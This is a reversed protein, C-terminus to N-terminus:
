RGRSKSGSNNNQVGPLGTFRQMRQQWEQQSAILSASPLILVVDEETLGSVVESYDLDTLGTRIEVPTPVGDRIAFVVYTGGFQAGTGQNRRGGEGGRGGRGGLRRLLQREAPALSQFGAPMGGHKQIKDVIARVQDADVGPPLQVTRGMFNVTNEGAEASHASDGGVRGGGGFRGSDVGQSGQQRAALLEQRVADPDLGLVQAASAM